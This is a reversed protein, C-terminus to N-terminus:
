PEFAQPAPRSTSIFLLALIPILWCKSQVPARKECISASSERFIAQDFLTEQLRLCILLWLLFCDNPSYIAPRGVQAGAGGVTAAFLYIGLRDVWLLQAGELKELPVGLAFSAIRLVDETREKNQYDM